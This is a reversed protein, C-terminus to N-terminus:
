SGVAFYKTKITLVRGLVVNIGPSFLWLNAITFSLHFGDWRYFLPDSVIGREKQRDFGYVSFYGM